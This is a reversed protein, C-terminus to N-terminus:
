RRRAGAGVGESAASPGIVAGTGEMGSAMWKRRGPGPADFAAAGAGGGGGGARGNGEGGGDRAEGRAQAKQADQRCVCM